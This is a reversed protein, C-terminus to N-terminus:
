RKLWDIAAELIGPTDSVFGLVSNCKGCLIGRVKGTEHNHDVYLRRGCNGVTASKCIGCAGGQALLIANYEELSIGYTRRLVYCKHKDPNNIRWKRRTANARKRNEKNWARSAAAGKEPNAAYLSRTLARECDRCESRVYEKDGRKQIRFEDLAKEVGCKKCCKM